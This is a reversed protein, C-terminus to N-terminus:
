RSAGAGRAAPRGGPEAEEVRNRGNAKARYLAADAAALLDAASLGHDPYAAAGVSVSVPISAAGAAFPEDAVVERVKAALRMTGQVPTKPLILAFEEGGFRTVVDVERTADTLRRALEVLVADGAQHGFRDNIGKFHDLDVLLLGFPEQFRIARQLEENMRLDFLRRNWLGTLGDTISLRTAEEYLFTNEIATEAQRVLSQLIHVDDDSFTAEPGRGYLALVGITRNGRRLPVAVATDADPEASDLDARAAGYAVEDSAAAVGAAGAGPELENGECDCRYCSMARLRGAPPVVAYFVGCGAGVSLASTELVASIIGARDHTVTLADGLRNLASRFNADREELAVRQRHLRDLMQNFAEALEALDPEAPAKVATEDDTGAARAAAALDRVFRALRDDVSM